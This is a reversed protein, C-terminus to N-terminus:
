PNRILGSVYQWVREGVADPSESADIIRFRDPCRAAIALYGNRVRKHFDRSEREIRDCQSNNDANRKALRGFGAEVDIDLLLTLDPSLSRTAVNNMLLVQELNFGRAYGQYATTSDAYRDCIVVDGRDLAPLVISQVIQARAALFLFMETEDFVQEGSGDHQLISRIAEGTKTGGPERTLVSRVGSSSLREFLLRAQTSKGSGEPGELTIFSGRNM